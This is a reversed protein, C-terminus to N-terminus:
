HPRSSHSRPACYLERLSYSSRTSFLITPRDRYESWDPRITTTVPALEPNTQAILRVERQRRSAGQPLRGRSPVLSFGSSISLQEDLAQCVPRRWVAARAALGPMRGKAGEPPALDRRNLVSM